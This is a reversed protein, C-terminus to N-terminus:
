VPCRGGGKKLLAEGATVAPEYYPQKPSMSHISNELSGGAARFGGKVICAEEVARAEGRTLGSAGKIAEPIFERGASAHQATRQALNNTIGVYSGAGTPTRGAYVVYTREGGLLEKPLTAAAGTFIRKLIRKKLSAPWSMHETLAAAAAQARDGRRAFTTVTKAAVATGGAIPVLGIANVVADLIDGEGISTVLERAAGVDMLDSAVQGALYEPAQLQAANLHATHTAGWKWDGFTAGGLFAAIAEARDLDYALPDSGRACETADGYGDGDPNALTPDSGCDLETADAAGDDDTDRQLPNLDLLYEDTDGVGDADSDPNTPNSVGAHVRGFKATTLLEGAEVGDSLGDGDSDPKKPNTRFVRGTQTKWGNSEQADTLGDADTDKETGGIGLRHAFRQVVSNPGAFVSPQDLQHAVLGGAILTALVLLVIVGRRRRGNAPALREHDSGGAEAPNSVSSTKPDDDDM